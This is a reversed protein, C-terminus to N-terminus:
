AYRQSLFEVLFMLIVTFIPFYAFVKDHILRDLSQHVPHALRHFQRTVAGASSRTVSPKREFCVEIAGERLLRSLSTSLEWSPYPDKAYAEVDFGSEAPVRWTIKRLHDTWKRCAYDMSDVIVQGWTYDTDDTCGTVSFVLHELRPFLTADGPAFIVHQSTAMRFNLVLSRVSPFTQMPWPILWRKGGISDPELVLSLDLSTVHEVPLGQYQTTVDFFCNEKQLTWSSFQRAMNLAHKLGMREACRDVALWAGGGGRTMYQWGVRALSRSVLRLAKADQLSLHPFVHVMWVDRPVPRAAHDHFAGSLSVSQGM